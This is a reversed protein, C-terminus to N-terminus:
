ANWGGDVQVDAGSLCSADPSAVFAVAPAIEDPEAYRRLPLGAIAAHGLESDAPIVMDTRAFSVVVNNVTIRRPALEHAWSRGYMAIAAKSAGYHAFGGAAARQGAVSHINIIRGGDRIHPMARETLAVMGHVNIAWMREVEAVPVSRSPGAVFVAANNVLVHVRGFENAVADALGEAQARDALDAQFM